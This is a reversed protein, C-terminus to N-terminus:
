YKKLLSNDKYKSKSNFWWSDVYFQTRITLVNDKKFDKEWGLIGTKENTIYDYWIMLKFWNYPVFSYGVGLTSYKIDTISFGKPSLFDTGKVQAQPDYWDYKLTIDHM